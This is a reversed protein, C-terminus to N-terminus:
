CGSTEENENAWHLPIQVQDEENTDLDPGDENV